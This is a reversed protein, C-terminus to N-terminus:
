IATLAHMMDHEEHELIHCHWVYEDVGPLRPSTPLTGEYTTPLGGATVGPVQVKRGPLPKEVYVLVTTCEGPHMQVTEKWGTEGPEPGRAPGIFVATGAFRKVDFLQRRLVKVNFLHFHMPHTDATLNYINWIQVGGYTVAEGATLDLYDRGFVGPTVAVNTGVLQKLRGFADMAENLTLHKVPYMSGEGVVSMAGAADKVVTVGVPLSPEVPLAAPISITAGATTGVVIKLPTRTNPGFGPKTGAKTGIDYDFLPSGVPYPAPADNYLIVNAGACASFDVILDAREGPGLVLGINPPTTTADYLKVPAPLFGGESGIQWARVPALVPVGKNNVRAEGPLNKHEMAFWLRLFRANCANLLRLRYMGANANFFPYAIGNVLMTDAWFEPVASPLPAAAKGFIQTDYLYPYWLDGAQAGPVYLAYNPDVVPDWFTKDQFVWPVGVLPLGLSSELAADLIVYASALGAYANTRTIGIAHDHYWMLRASQNNPYWYDDTLNGNRDPLWKVVSAGYVPVGSGAQPPTFWHFPGGDSTWPVLGGHLHVAARDQRMAGNGPMPITSDFPLMHTSPLNNTFKMRVPKGKEAVTVGGLHAWQGGASRYGYLRQGTAPLGPHLQQRFSGIEMNYYDVGPYEATNKSAVPLGGGPLPLPWVFKQLRPSVPFAGYAKRRAMLLAAGGAGIRM